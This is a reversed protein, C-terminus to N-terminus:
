KAHVSESVSIHYVNDMCVAKAVVAPTKVGNLIDETKYVNNFEDIYYIIGQISIEFVTVKTDVVTEVSLSGYPLHKCHTGCYNSDVLKRRSCQKNNQLLGNCQNLASITPQPVSQKVFDEKKIVIKEYENLYELLANVKENTAFDLEIIKKKLDDKFQVIYDEFIKNIKKEM